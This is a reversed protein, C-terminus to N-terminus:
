EKHILLTYLQELPYINGHRSVCLVSVVPLGVLGRTTRVFLFTKISLELKYSLITKPALTLDPTHLISKGLETLNGTCQEGKVGLIRLADELSSGKKTTHATVTEKGIILEFEIENKLKGGLLQKFTTQLGLNVLLTEGLGDVVGTNKDTLTVDTNSSL